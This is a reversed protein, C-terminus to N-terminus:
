IHTAQMSSEPLAAAFSGSLNQWLVINNRCLYFSKIMQLGPFCLPVPTKGSLTSTNLHSRLYQATQNPHTTASASSFLSSSNTAVNERHGLIHVSVSVSNLMWLQIAYYQEDCFRRNGPVEKGQQSYNTTCHMTCHIPMSSTRPNCIDDYVTFEASCLMRPSCPYLM